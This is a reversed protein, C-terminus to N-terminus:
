RTNIIFMDPRVRDVSRRDGGHGALAQRLVPHRLRALPVRRGLWFTRCSDKTHIGSGGTSQSLARSLAAPAPEDLRPTARDRREPWTQLIMLLLIGITVTTAGLWLTRETLMLAPDNRM